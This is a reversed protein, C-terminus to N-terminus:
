LSSFLTLTEADYIIQLLDETIQYKDESLLNKLDIAGFSFLASVQQFPQVKECSTETEIQGIFVFKSKLFSFIERALLM